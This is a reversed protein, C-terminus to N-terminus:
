RPTTLTRARHRTDKRKEEVHQIQLGEEKEGAKFASGGEGERPHKWGPESRWGVTGMPPLTYEHIKQRERQEPQRAQGTLGCVRGLGKPVVTCYFVRGLVCFEVWSM